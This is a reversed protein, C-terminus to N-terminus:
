AAPVSEAPIAIAIADRGRPHLNEGSEHLAPRRPFRRPSLEDLAIAGGGEGAFRRLLKM